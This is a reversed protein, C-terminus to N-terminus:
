QHFGRKWGYTLAKLGHKYYFVFLHSLVIYFQATCSLSLFWALFSWYYIVSQCCFVRSFTVLSVFSPFVLFSFVFFTSFYFSLLLLVDVFCRLFGFVHLLILHPLSLLMSCRLRGVGPTHRELWRRVLCFCSVLADNCREYTDISRSCWWPLSIPPPPPPSHILPSYSWSLFYKGPAGGRYLSPFTSLHTFQLIM